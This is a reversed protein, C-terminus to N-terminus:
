WKIRCRLTFTILPRTGPNSPSPPITNPQLNASASRTITRLSPRPSKPQLNPLLLNSSAQKCPLSLLQSVLSRCFHFTLKPESASSSMVPNIVQIPSLESTSAAIIESSKKARLSALASADTTSMTISVVETSSAPVTITTSTQAVVGVALLAAGFIFIDQM